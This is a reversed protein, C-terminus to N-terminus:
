STSPLVPRIRSRIASPTASSPRRTTTRVRAASLEAEIYKKPNACAGRANAIMNAFPFGCVLRGALLGILANVGFFIGTALPVIIALLAPLIMERQAGKTSIEVCKQYDPDAKGEKLGKIEKFQRRVEEVMKQAARGVASMTLASFLFPTMAGIFLGVIVEPTIVDAVIPGNSAGLKQVIEDKFAALLALATLAASGIAFGKGTAATTNGLSDLADTRVRVEKGLGGEAGAMEAIGGANDAVPGYADTSLTTGLTSLMGIAAIGIGYLGMNPNAAGGSCFYAGVTAFVVTFVPIWTSLMGLSLGGIIITAPGTTSQGAM